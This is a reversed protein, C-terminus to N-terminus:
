PGIRNVVPACKVVREIAGIEDIPAVYPVLVNQEINGFTDTEALSVRAFNELLSGIPRGDIGIPRLRPAIANGANRGEHRAASTDDARLRILCDLAQQDLGACLM